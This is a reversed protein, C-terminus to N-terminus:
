DLAGAVSWATWCVRQLKRSSQALREFANPCPSKPRITCNIMFFYMSEKDRNDLCVSLRM